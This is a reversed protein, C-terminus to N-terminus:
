SIFRKFRALSGQLSAKFLLHILCIINIFGFQVSSVNGIFLHTRGDRGSAGVGGGPTGM